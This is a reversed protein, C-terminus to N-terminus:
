GDLLAECDVDDDRDGDHDGDDDDRVGVDDIDLGVSDAELAEEDVIERIYEEFDADQQAATNAEARRAARSSGCGGGRSAGDGDEDKVSKEYTRWPMHRRKSNKRKILVDPFTKRVLIIDQVDQLPAKLMDDVAASTVIRQLDYGLVTDGAKLVRGLHTLITFSDDNIGFDSERVITALGMSSSNDGGGAGSSSSSSSNYEVDVDMVIFSTLTSGAAALVLKPSDRKSFLRATARDRLENTLPDVLRVSSALRHVLMIRGDDLVLDGKCLPAVEMLTTYEIRDVNSKHDRGVQKKSESVKM